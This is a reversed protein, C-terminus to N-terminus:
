GALPLIVELRAGGSPSDLAQVSGGHTTAVHRVIALGLGSGGVMRSRSDDLRVFREFIRERESEPIGPGDDDVRLVVTERGAADLHISVTSRAHRVANDILNGVMRRLRNPDGLVRGAFVGSTDVRLGADSCVRNAEVFAIDDLDVEESM